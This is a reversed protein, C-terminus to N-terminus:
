LGHAFAAADRIDGDDLRQVLVVYTGIRDHIAEAVTNPLTFTPANWEGLMWLSRLLFDFNRTDAEM